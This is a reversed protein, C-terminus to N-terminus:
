MRCLRVAVNKVFARAPTDFIFASGSCKYNKEGHKIGTTELSRLEDIFTSLFERANKPQSTGHFLGILFPKREPDKDMLGLIPWFQPKSTKFLPLGDVNTQFTIEDGFDHM